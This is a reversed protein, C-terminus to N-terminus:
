TLKALMASNYHQLHKLGLGGLRKPLRMNNWSIFHRNNHSSSSNWWYNRQIQDMQRLSTDPLKLVQM